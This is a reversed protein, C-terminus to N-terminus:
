FVDVHDPKESWYQKTDENKELWFPIPRLVPLIISDYQGNSLCLVRILKVIDFDATLNATLETLINGLKQQDIPLNKYAQFIIVEGTQNAIANDIYSTRRTEYEPNNAKKCKFFYIFFFVM